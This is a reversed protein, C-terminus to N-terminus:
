HYRMRSGVFAAIFGTSLLTVLLLDKYVLIRPSIVCSPFIVCGLNFLIFFPVLYVLVLIVRHGGGHGRLTWRFCWKLAVGAPLWASAMLLLGSVILWSSATLLAIQLLVMAIFGLNYSTGYVAYDVDSTNLWAPLFHLLLGLLTFGGLGFIIMTSLVPIASPLKILDAGYLVLLLLSHVLASFVFLRHPQSAIRWWARSYLGRQPRNM